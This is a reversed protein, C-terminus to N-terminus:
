PRPALAQQDTAWEAAVRVAALTATVDHVRVLAAGHHAALASVAATAADRDQPASGALGALMSKRSAGVMIPRGLARLRPLSRLLTWSQECTKAFGLGPDIVIQDPTVGARVLAELRCGLEAVVDRVIDSYVAHEQMHRSHARWHMAVYPVKLEAICAAMEPDALGGSVDNVITAGTAVAARAVDARMTDVSVPVGHATLAEVVPLVRTLEAQASIRDAGPRTSEGGVDILDAGEAALRLGHAVARAPDAFQGGDSFSDPTVNLIGMVLCRDASRLLEAVPRGARLTATV